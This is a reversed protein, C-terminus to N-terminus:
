SSNPSSKERLSSPNEVGRRILKKVWRKLGFTALVRTIGGSIGETAERLSIRGINRLSPKLYFVDACLSSGTAFLSKQPTEGELFDFLQFRGEAFLRELALYQLVTGPSLHQFKPDYGLYRYFLIGTDQWCPCYLYAVPDEGVLLLYGRVRDNRALELMEARFPDSSPLGVDLIREQYTKRSLQRALCYFQDMEEAARYERFEVEENSALFRRVKRALTSRTKSSFKGLYDTFTGRLDIWYRQYQKPCYQILGDELRLRALRGSVPFSQALSGDVGAAM